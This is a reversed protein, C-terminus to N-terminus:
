QLARHEATCFPTGSSDSPHWRCQRRICSRRRLHRTRLLPSGIRGSPSRSRPRVPKSGRHSRSGPATRFRARSRNSCRTRLGRPIRRSHDQVRTRSRLKGACKSRPLRATTALRAIGIGGQSTNSEALEGHLKGLARALLIAMALVGLGFVLVHRTQRIQFNGVRCVLVYGIVLNFFGWLVNV